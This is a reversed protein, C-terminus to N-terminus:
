PYQCGKQSTISVKGVDVGSERAIQVAEKYLDAPLEPTRSLIWLSTADSNSIVAYRYDKDLGIIWYDGKFPWFFTVKLKSNTKPDVVEATGQAKSLRGDIADKNCTNLVSIQTNDKLGYQARTCVCGKTFFQPISAIEYWDGLYRQLDVHEVTRPAAQALPSVFLLCVTTFLLCWARNCNTFM